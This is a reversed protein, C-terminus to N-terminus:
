RQRREYPNPNVPYNERPSNSQPTVEGRNPNYNGPYGYNDTRASNPQTRTYPEVYTDKVGDGDTDRYHGRVHVQGFAFVPILVALLVIAFFAKKM